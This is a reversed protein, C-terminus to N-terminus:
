TQLSDELARRIKQAHPSQDEPTAKLRQQTTDIEQKIQKPSTRELFKGLSHETFLLRLFIWLLKDLGELQLSELPAGVDAAPSHALDSAIERLELCQARLREFRALAPPTLSRIIQQLAQQSSRAMGKRDAAAAQTDVYKQFRPHTGLFGLYAAEAA